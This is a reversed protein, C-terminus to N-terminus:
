ETPVRNWLSVHEPSPNGDKLDATSRKGLPCRGEHIVMDCIEHTRGHGDDPPYAAENM